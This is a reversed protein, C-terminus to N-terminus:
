TEERIKCLFNMTAFAQNSRPRDPLSIWIPRSLTMRTGFRSYLAWRSENKAIQNNGDFAGQFLCGPDMVHPM